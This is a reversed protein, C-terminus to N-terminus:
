PSSPEFRDTASMVLASDSSSTRAYLFCIFAAAFSAAVRHAPVAPDGHDPRAVQGALRTRGTLKSAVARTGHTAIKLAAGCPAEM